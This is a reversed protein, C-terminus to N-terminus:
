KVMIKGASQQNAVRVRLMYLGSKPAKLSAENSGALARGSYTAMVKGDLNLVDVVLRSGALSEDVSFGVNLSGAAQAVHLHEVASAQVTVYGKTVRISAKTASAKLAVRIEDGENVETSKGNVIVYTRYGLSKLESVGVLSLKGMRESSASLALEWEYSDAEQKISKALARDGDVISLTVHDGMSAPPEAAQKAKAGVGLVNWVDQRGNNDALVAQISWNSKSQAKALAVRKAAVPANSSDLYVPEANVHWSATHTEISVWAAEYPKLVSTRVYNGISNDYRWFCFEECDDLNEKKAAKNDNYVDLNWGYPNAVMNWGSYSSDLSWTIDDVIPEAQDNLALSRGEISSYWFGRLADYKQGPVFEKYQWYVGPEGIEDWWFFIQDGDRDVAATDIAVMSIMQWEDAVAVIHDEVEFRVPESTATDTKDAIEATLMYEGVAVPLKTWSISAPTAAVSDTLVSDVVVNGLVDLMTIRVEAGRTVEFESTAFSLRVANGSQEFKMDVIELETKNAKSFFANLVGDTLDKVLADGDLYAYAEDVGERSFVLSDMVFSSDPVSEIRFRTGNAIRPVLMSHDAGFEHPVLVVDNDKGTMEILRVSGNEALLKLRTYASCMEGDAWVAYLKNVSSDSLFKAMHRDFVNYVEDGESANEKTSWGVVCSNATYVYEPMIYSSSDKVGRLEYRSSDSWDDGFYVKQSDKKVNYVISYTRLTTDVYPEVNAVIVVSEGFVVLEDNEANYFDKLVNGQVDMVTFHPEDKKWVYDENPTFEIAFSLEVNPVSIGDEGITYIASGNRSRLVMEGKELSASAIKVGNSECDDWVGYLHGDFLKLRKLADLDERFEDNYETYTKGIDSAFAWGQLCADVRYLSTVFYADEDIKFDQVGSEYWDRGYFVDASDANVVFAIRVTEDKKAPVYLDVDAEAVLVNNRLNVKGNEDEYYVIGDNIASYGDNIEVNVNFILGVNPVTLPLDYVDGLSTELTLTGMEPDSAQTIVVNNLTECEVWKPYVFIKSADEEGLDEAAMLFDKNFAEFIEEGDVALQWGAFCSDTRYLDMPFDEEDAVSYGIARNKENWSDGYFVKSDEAEFVVIYDGDVLGVPSLNLDYEITLLGNEFVDKTVDNRGYKVVASDAYAVKYGMEPEFSVAFQLGGAVKPLILGQAPIVYPKHGPQTLTMVGKEISDNYVVVTQGAAGWVAQLVLSGDERRVLNEDESAAYAQLTEDLTNFVVSEEDESVEVLKLTWGVLASDSRYVNTPLDLSMSGDFTYTVTDVWDTGYFIPATAEVNEDFALKVDAKPLATVTFNIVAEDVMVYMGNEDLEQEEAFETQALFGGELVEYGEDPVVKIGMRTMFMYDPLILRGEDEDTFAHFITDKGVIQFATVTAHEAKLTAVVREFDEYDDDAKDKWIAYLTTPEDQYVSSHQLMYLNFDKFLPDKDSRNAPKVMSWGMFVKDTHYPEALSNLYQEIDSLEFSENLEFVGLDFFLGGVDEEPLNIDYAFYHTGGNDFTVHWHQNESIDLMMSDQGVFTGDYIGYTYDFSIDKLVYGEDPVAVAMLKISVDPVKPVYLVTDGGVVTFKHRLTDAKSKEGEAVPISVIQLMEVTGHGDTSLRLTYFADDAQRCVPNEKDLVMTNVPADEGDPADSAPTLAKTLSGDFEFLAVGNYKEAAVEDAPIWGIRCGESNYVVPFEMEENEIDYQKEDFWGLENRSNNAIFLSSDVDTLRDFAIRYNQLSYSATLIHTCPDQVHLTFNDKIEFTPEGDVTIATGVDNEDTLLITCTKLENRQSYTLKELKYGPDTEEVVDFYASTSSEPLLPLYMYDFNKEENAKDFSHELVVENEADKRFTQTLKIEGHKEDNEYMIVISDHKETTRAEWVPALVLEITEDQCSELLSSNFSAFGTSPCGTIMWGALATGEQVAHERSPLVNNRDEVSWEDKEVIQTWWDGDLGVYLFPVTETEGLDFSVKYKLLEYEPEIVLTTQPKVAAAYSYDKVIQVDLKEMTALASLLSDLLIDEDPELTVSWGVGTGNKLAPAIDGILEDVGNLYNHTASKYASPESNLFVKATYGLLEYGGFGQVAFDVVYPLKFDVSYDPVKRAIEKETGDALRGKAVLYASPKGNDVGRINLTFDFFGEQPIEYQVYLKGDVSEGSIHDLLRELDNFTTYEIYEISSRTREYVFGDRLTESFNLQATSFTNPDVKIGARAIIPYKRSGELNVLTLLPIPTVVTNDFRTVKNWMFVPYYDSGLWVYGDESYDYEKNYVPVMDNGSIEVVYGNPHAEDVTFIQYVVEYIRQGKAHAIVDDSLENKLYLVKSTKEDVALIKESELLNVLEAGLKRDAGTYTVYSVETLIKEPDLLKLDGECIEDGPCYCEGDEDCSEEESCVWSGDCYEEGDGDYEYQLDWSGYSELSTKVSGSLKEYDSVDMELRFQFVSKSDTWVPYGENAEEADINFWPLTGHITESNLENNLAYVMARSKLDANSVVGSYLSSANGKQIDGNGFPSFDGDSDLGTIANRYNYICSGAVDTQWSNNEDDDSDTLLGLAIKANVDTKGVHYNNSIRPTSSDYEVHGVVYGTWLDSAVASSINGKTYNGIIYSGNSSFFYGVLGGVASAANVNTAALSIDGFVTNTTVGSTYRSAYLYGAIGGVFAKEVSTASANILAGTTAASVTNRTFKPAEGESVSAYGALGGIYLGGQSSTSLNVSVQNENASVLDGSGARGFLGGLYVASANAASVNVSGTVISKEVNGVSGVGSLGIYGAVASAYVNQDTTGLLEITSSISTEESVGFANETSSPRVSLGYGVVGGLFIGTLGDAYLNNANDSISINSSIKKNKIVNLSGSSIGGIVGGVAVNAIVSVDEFKKPYTMGVNVDIVNETVTLFSGDVRGVLGGVSRSLDTMMVGQLNQSYVNGACDAFDWDITFNVTDNKLVMGQVSEIWGILGGNGKFQENRSQCLMGFSPAMSVDTISYDASASSKMYGIIGGVADGAGLALKTAHIKKFSSPRRGDAVVAAVGGIYRSALDGNGVEVTNQEIDSFSSEESLVVVGGVFGAPSSCAIESKEVLISKFSSSKASGVVASASDLGTVHSNIVNVNEFDVYQARNVAVAAVGSLSSSVHAGDFTVNKVSGSYMDGLFSAGSTSCFNKVSHDKGDLVFEMPMVGFFLGKGISEGCGLDEDFGALEIDSGLSVKISSISNGSGWLAQLDSLMETWSSYGAEDNEDQTIVCDFTDYYNGSNEDGIYESGGDCSFSVPKALAGPAAAQAAAFAVLGLTLVGVIKSIKLM